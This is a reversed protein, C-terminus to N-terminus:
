TQHAPERFFNMAKLLTRMSAPLQAAIALVVGLLEKAARRNAPQRERRCDFTRAGWLIYKETLYGIRRAGVSKCASSLRFKFILTTGHPFFYCPGRHQPKSPMLRM